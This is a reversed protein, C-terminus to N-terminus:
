KCLPNTPDITIQYWPQALNKFKNEGALLKLIESIVLWSVFVIVLGIVTNYVLQRGKQVRQPSGGSVILFFGAVGFMVFALPIAIYYTMYDILNKLLVPIHCITCPNKENIDPTGPADNLLGCPVIPGEVGIIGAHAAFPAVAFLFLVFFSITYKQAIDRM